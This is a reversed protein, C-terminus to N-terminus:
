FSVGDFTTIVGDGATGAGSGISTSMAEIILPLALCAGGAGLRIVGEKLPTQPNDVHAKLKLIGAIALGLGVLYSLVSLLRPVENVSSAISTSVGQFGNAHADTNMGLLVATTAMAAFKYKKM